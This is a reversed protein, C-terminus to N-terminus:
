RRQAAPRPMSRLGAPIASPTSCRAAPRSAAHGAGTTASTSTSAPRTGRSSTSGTACGTRRSRSKLRSARAGRIRAEAARVDLNAGLAEALLRVLTTDGLARWYEGVVATDSTVVPVANPSPQARPALSDLRERFATPIQVEPERYAAPACANLLLLTLWITAKHM